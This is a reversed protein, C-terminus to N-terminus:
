RKNRGLREDWMQSDAVTSIRVRRVRLVVREITSTKAFQGHKKADSKFVAETGPGPLPFYIDVLHASKNRREGGTLRAGRLPHNLEERGTSRSIVAVCEFDSNMHYIRNRTWIEFLTWSTGEFSQGGHQEVIQVEIGADPPLSRRGDPGPPPKSTRGPIPPANPLRLTGGFPRVPSQMSGSPRRTSM